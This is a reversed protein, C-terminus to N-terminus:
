RARGPKGPVSTVTVGADRYQALAAESVSSETFLWTLDHLPAIVYRSATGLKDATVLAVVDGSAQVMAQKVYSEDLDNTTIGFRPDVSCVGLFCLDARVQRVGAITAADVAALSDKRVRGGLMIVDIHPHEALAMAVPPSNTVITARLERSLSRALAVNTTGADIIVVQGPQILGATAEALAGKVEPSAQARAAFSPATTSVPL